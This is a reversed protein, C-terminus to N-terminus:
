GYDISVGTNALSDRIELAMKKVTRGSLRFDEDLLDCAEDVFMSVTPCPVGLLKALGELPVMGYPIDEEILRVHTTTPGPVAELHIQGSRSRMRSRFWEYLNTVEVGEFPPYANVLFKYLPMMEVNCAHAIAIREQDVIEMLEGVEPTIGEAYLAWAKRGRVKDLNRLVVVPHVVMNAGSLGTYLVDPFLNIHPYVKYLWRRFEGPLKDSPSFSADLAGKVGRVWVRGQVEKDLKTAYPLINFEGVIPLETCGGARLSAQMEWTSGLTGSGIMMIQSPKIHEAIALGLHDIAPQTGAMIILDVGQIAEVPDNTVVALPYERGEDGGIEGRAFIRNQNERIPDLRYSSRNYLSVWEVDGKELFHAAFTIGGNGASLVAVRKIEGHATKEM